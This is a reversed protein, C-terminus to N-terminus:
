HPFDPHKCCDGAYDKDETRRGYECASSPVRASMSTTAMRASMTAAGAALSSMMSTMGAILMSPDCAARRITAMEHVLAAAGRNILSQRIAGFEGLFLPLPNRSFLGSISKLGPKILM